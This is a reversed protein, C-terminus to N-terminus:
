AGAASADLLRYLHRRSIGLRRAAEAKNGSAARLAADVAARRSGEGPLKTGLATLVRPPLAAVELTAGTSLVLAREICNGLERINGPWDYALMAELFARSPAREPTKLLDAKRAVMERILSPILDRRERLPAVSLEVVALRYFLDERFRGEAVMARLDRHTAAILRIDIPVRQEAGVPLVARDEILTLLKAQQDLALEGIEDLFLTGGEAARALGLRAGSAGTFAGKVHGFLQSEFLSPTLASCDAVVFAGSARQSEAHLSRALVGKGAGTEGGILVTVGSEALARRREPAMAYDLEGVQCDAAM